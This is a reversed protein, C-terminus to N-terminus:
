GLGAQIHVSVQYEAFCVALGAHRRVRAKAPLEVEAAVKPSSEPFHLDASAAAQVTRGEEEKLRWWWLGVWEYTSVLAFQRGM